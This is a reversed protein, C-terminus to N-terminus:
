SIKAARRAMARPGAQGTIYIVAGLLALPLMGLRWLLLLAAGGSYGMLSFLQDFAAEGVGLGGPTLPIANAVMGMMTLFAVQAWPAAPIVVSAVVVYTAAVAIHGALSLLCAAAIARKRNQFEHLAVAIREVYRRGPMREMIWTYLRSSRFTKSWALTVVAAIVLMAGIVVVGLGRLVASALVVDRNVVMMGLVFLLVAFLAIARDVIMVTATELGRLRNDQALYYLKVVDGGTGGPICFNFFTSVPVVRYAGHWTLNLGAARFLVRLREAEISAGFVPLGVLIALVWPESLVPLVAERVGVRSVVWVLLGLGLLIRLGSALKKLRTLEVRRYPEIRM